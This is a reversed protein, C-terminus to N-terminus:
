RLPSSPPMRTPRVVFSCALTVPPSPWRSPSRSPRRARGTTSRCRTRTAKTPATFRPRPRARTPTATPRGAPPMPSRCRIAVCPPRLQSPIFSLLRRTSALSTTASATNWGFRLATQYPVADGLMLRYVATSDNPHSGDPKINRPQGTFADSYQVGNRFYWGGEYYDETGTGYLQPSQSNDVYVREDGELYGRGGGQTGRMSESVGVFKGHGGEDAFLWDQGPTTAGYTSRATFYGASGDALATTWQPDPAVTVQTNIGSIAAGTTNALTITANQAFPMPWWTSFWGNAAPDSAFLLSRVTSPGIGSGFFEGVPSDVTSRGDFTIKLRLGALSAETPASTFQLRLASITGPGTPQAVTATGGAPVSVTGASTQAGPAAPKPDRTGAANLVSLVDQAQDARNFTSVGDADPFHRYDVHYYALASQVSVRMSSRYTM